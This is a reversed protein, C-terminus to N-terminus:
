TLKGTELSGRSQHAEKRDACGVPSGFCLEKLKHLQDHHMLFVDNAKALQIASRTFKANTVVAAFQAQEYAKGAVIEQVAANGVNSSYLKCQIVLKKGNMTAIVDIGQDGSDKTTRTKWGLEKLTDAVLHEYQVPDMDNSFNSKQDYNSTLVYIYDVLEEKFRVVEDVTALNFIKNRKLYDDPRDYERYYGITREFEKIKDDLVENFFTSLEAIWKSEDVKGYKSTVTLRKRELSLDQAHLSILDKTRKKIEEIRKPRMKEAYQKAKEISKKEEKEEKSLFIDASYLVVYILAIVVLVVIGIAPYSIWPNPNAMSGIVVLALFIWVAKEM